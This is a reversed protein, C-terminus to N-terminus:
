NDSKSESKSKKENQNQCQEINDKVKGGTFVGTYIFLDEVSSINLQFIIIAM